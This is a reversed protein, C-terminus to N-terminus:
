DRESCNKSKIKLVTIMRTNMNAQYYKHIEKHVRCHAELVLTRRLQFNQCAYGVAEQILTVVIMFLIMYHTASLIRSADRSLNRAVGNSNWHVQSLAAPVSITKMAFFLVVSYGVWKEKNKVLGYSQLACLESSKSLMRFWVSGPIGPYHIFPYGPLLNEGHSASTM